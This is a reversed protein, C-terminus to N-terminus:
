APEEGKGPWGSVSDYTGSQGSKEDLKLLVSFTAGTELEFKQIWGSSSMDM